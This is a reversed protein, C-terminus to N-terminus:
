SSTGPTCRSYEALGHSTFSQNPVEPVNEDNCDILSLLTSERRSFFALESIHEDRQDTQVMGLTMVSM